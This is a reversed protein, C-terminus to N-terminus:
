AFYFGGMIEVNLGHGSEYKRSHCLLHILWLQFRVVV